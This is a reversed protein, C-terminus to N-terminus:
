DEFTIMNKGIRLPVRMERACFTARVIAEEQTEFAVVDTEWPTFFGLEEEWTLYQWKWGAIPRYVELFGREMVKEESFLEVRAMAM